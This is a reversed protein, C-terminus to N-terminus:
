AEAARKLMAAEVAALRAIAQRDSGGDQKVKMWISRCSRPSWPLAAEQMWARLSPPLRDYETMANGTRKRIPLGTAGLNRRRPHPM